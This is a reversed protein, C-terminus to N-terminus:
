EAVRGASPVDFVFAMYRSHRRVATHAPASQQIDAWDALSLSRMLPNHLEVLRRGWQKGGLWALLKFVTQLPDTVHGSWDYSAAVSLGCSRGVAEYEGPLAFNEWQWTRRVLEAFAPSVNMRSTPTRWVFDVVVLRGGPRLVRAAERLFATRDPFHFAAELCLVRDFSADRFALATADGELYTLNRANGYLARAAEVNSALIDVGTVATDPTSNAIMFAGAGRGCGVDLIRMGPGGQLLQMAKKVLRMQAVPLRFYPIVVGPTLLFNLATLPPPFPYYGLNLLPGWGYARLLRFTVNSGDYAHAVAPETSRRSPAADAGVRPEPANDLM